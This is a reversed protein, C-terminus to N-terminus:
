IIMNLYSRLERMFLRSYKDSSMNDIYKQNEEFLEGNDNVDITNAKIYLKQINYILVKKIYYGDMDDIWKENNWYQFKRASINKIPSSYNVNLGENYKIIYFENFVKVDAEVNKSALLKVILKKNFNLDLKEKIISRLNDSLMPKKTITREIVEVKNNVIDLRKSIDDIRNLFMVTFEEFKIDIHSNISEM